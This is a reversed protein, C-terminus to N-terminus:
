GEQLLIAAEVKVVVWPEVAFNWPLRAVLFATTPVVPPIRPSFIHTRTRNRTRTSGNRYHVRDASAM